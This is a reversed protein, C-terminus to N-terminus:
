LWRTPGTVGTKLTIAEGSQTFAAMARDNPPCGDWRWAQRLQLPPLSPCSLSRAGRAPAVAVTVVVVVARGAPVLPSRSGSLLRLSTVHLLIALALPGWAPRSLALTKAGAAFPRSSFTGPPEQCSTAAEM